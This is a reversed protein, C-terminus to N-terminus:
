ESEQYFSTKHYPFISCLAFCSSARISILHYWWHSALTQEERYVESSPLVTRQLGFHLFYSPEQWHVLSFPPSHRLTQKEVEACLFVRMQFRAQIERRGNNPYFGLMTECFTSQKWWCFDLGKALLWSNVSSLYPEQGMPAFFSFCFPTPLKFDHIQNTSSSFNSGVARNGARYSFWATLKRTDSSRAFLFRGGYTWFNTFCVCIAIIVSGPLRPSVKVCM